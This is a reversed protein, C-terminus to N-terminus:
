HLEADQGDAAADGDVITHQERWRDVAELPAPGAVAHGQLFDVGLVRLLEQEEPREVQKAVTHVGGVRAIQAIAAIRMRAAKSTALDWTLKRDIKALRVAPLGLLEVTQDDLLCNDVVVGVGMIDARECLKEVCSRDKRWLSQDIEFAMLAPAIESKSICLEIFRMFNPDAVSSASLNMSFQAPEDAFVDNRASLWVILAGAVRRDIVSGLGMGDADRLLGLPASEKVSAAAERLFVEYRRIRAGPQLPSLPQAVLALPFARLRAFLEEVKPEDASPGHAILREAQAATLEASQGQPYITPASGLRMAWEQAARQVPVPLDHVSKGKGRLRQNDVVLMVFGRFINTLDAARILVATRQEPLQHDARAPASQGVFREIALRVADLEAPGWAGPSQWCVNGRSDHMSIRRSWKLPLAAVIRQAYIGALGDLTGAHAPTAATSNV